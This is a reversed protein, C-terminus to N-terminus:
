TKKKKLTYRNTVLNIIKNCKNTVKKFRWILYYKNNVDFKVTLKTVNCSLDKKKDNVKECQGWTVNFFLKITLIMDNGFSNSITYLSM